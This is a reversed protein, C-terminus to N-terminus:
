EPVGFIVLVDKLSKKIGGLTDAFAQEIVKHPRILDYKISLAGESVRYRLRADFEYKRQGLGDWVPISIKFIEPMAIRRPAGTGGGDLADAYELSMTGDSLNMASKFSVKRNVKFNLAIELMRAGAPNVFDPLNDEIFYAFQEQSMDKAQRQHWADCEKSNKLTFTVRHDRWGATTHHENLVAVFGAPHLAAYIMTGYASVHRKVADCFSDADNVKVIGKKRHPQDPRELYEVMIGSPTPRLVYARGEAHPNTQPKGLSAGAAILAAADTTATVIEDQNM